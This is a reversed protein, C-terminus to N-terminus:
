PEINSIRAVALGYQRFITEATFPPVAAPPAEPVGARVKATSSIDFGALAACPARRLAESAKGPVPTEFDRFGRIATSVFFEHPYLRALRSGFYREAADDGIFLAFEPLPAPTVVVLFCDNESQRAARFGLEAADVNRQDNLMGRFHTGGWWVLLVAAAATAWPVLRGRWGWRVFLDPLLWAIVGHAPLLYRGGPQKLCIAIQLAITGAGIVFRRLPERAWARRGIEVLLAGLFLFLIPDDSLLIRVNAGLQALEPLVGVERSGYIGRHMILTAIWGAFRPFRGWIPLTGALFAGVSWAVARLRERRDPLMFLVLALPFFVVKTVLGVGLLVGVLAPRPHAARLVIALVIAIALLLSEPSLRLVYFWTEGHWLVSAQAFACLFLPLREREALALGYLFTAASLLAVLGFGVWRVYEYPALFVADVLDHGGSFFLYRLPIMVTGFLQM